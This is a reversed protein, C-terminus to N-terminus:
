PCNPRPGSKFIYNVLYVADGANVRGDCNVEGSALPKPAPGKFAYSILYVVDGVNVSGDANVDGLIFGARFEARIEEPTLAFDYLKVDDIIGTYHGGVVRGDRGIFVPSDNQALTGTKSVSDKVVGDKYLRMFAGDYVLAIHMWGYLASVVTRETAPESTTRILYWAGISSAVESIHWVVDDPTAGKGVIWGQNTSYTKRIWATITIGEGGIDLIPMDPIEVFDDLGDFQLAQGLLPLSNVWAAGSITGNNGHGSQDGAITGAGENFGWHAVLSSAGASSAVAIALSTVAFLKWM